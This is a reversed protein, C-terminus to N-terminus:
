YSAFTQTTGNRDFQVVEYNDRRDGMEMGPSGLPMGPVALGATQPQQSLLRRIDRAPVHGEIAYGGIQGTHCSRLTEPVGLRAAVPSTDAVDIVRVAFGDARLHDVWSGCCGCAPTKYVVMEPLSTLDTSQGQTPQGADASCAVLMFPIAALLTRRNLNTM